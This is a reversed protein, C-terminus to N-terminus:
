YPERGPNTVIPRPGDRDGDEGPTWAYADPDAPPTPAPPIATLQDLQEAARGMAVKAVAAAFGVLIVLGAYLATDHM